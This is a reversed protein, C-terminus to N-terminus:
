PDIYSNTTNLACNLVPHLGFGLAQVDRSELRMQSLSWLGVGLVLGFSFGTSCIFLYISNALNFYFYM